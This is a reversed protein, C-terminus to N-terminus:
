DKEPNFMKMSLGSRREQKSSCGMCLDRVIGSPMKRSVTCDRCVYEGCGPCCFFQYSIRHNARKFALFHEKQWLLNRLEKETESRSKAEFVFPLPPTQYPKGCRECFFTFRFAMEDSDDKYRGTCSQFM